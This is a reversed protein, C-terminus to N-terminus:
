YWMYCTHHYTITVEASQPTFAPPDSNLTMKLEMVLKLGAHYVHSEVEFLYYIFLSIFLYIIGESRM